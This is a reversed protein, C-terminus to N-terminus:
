SNYILDRYVAKGRPSPVFCVSQAPTHEELLDRCSPAGFSVVDFWPKHVLLHWITTANGMLMRKGDYCEKPPVGVYLSIVGLGTTLSLTQPWDAAEVVWEVGRHFLMELMPKYLFNPLTEGGAIDCPVKCPSSQWSGVIFSWGGIFTFLLLLNPISIGNGMSSYRLCCCVCHNVFGSGLHCFDCLRLM